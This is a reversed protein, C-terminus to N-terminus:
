RRRRAFLGGLVGLGVFLVLSSPEPVATFTLTVNQFDIGNDAEGSSNTSGFANSNVHFALMDFDFVGLTTAVSAASLETTGIWLSGSLTLEDAGTKEVRFTGTYATNDFFDYADGGTGVTDFGATTGLLMDATRETFVERFSLDAPGESVLGVDLDQMYGYVTNWIPDSSSFGGHAIAAGGTNFLGIRFAADRDTGITDPTTFSFTAELADGINTLSQTSFTTHIGRGSTGSRLSLSSGFMEIASDGTTGYWASDLPDTGDTFDGDSWSDDILTQAIALSAGLPPLILLLPLKKM